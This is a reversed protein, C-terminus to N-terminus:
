PPSLYRGTVVRGRSTQLLWVSGKEWQLGGGLPTGEAHLQGITSSVVDGHTCLVAPRHELQAILALVDEAAAGEALASHAEVDILMAAGLPEVTQLCRTYPSSAIRQVPEETLLDVLADVQKVGSKSIPRSKDSKSWTSSKGADVHRVLYIRGSTPDNLYRNARELV